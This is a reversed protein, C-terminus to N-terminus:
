WSRWKKLLKRWKMVQQAGLLHKMLAEGLYFVKRWLSSQHSRKFEQQMLVIKQCYRHQLIDVYPQRWDGVQQVFLSEEVDLSEQCRAKSFTLLRAPQRLGTIVKDRCARIFVKTMTTVLSIMLTSYNKKLRSRLSPELQFEVVKKFIFNAILLLSTM